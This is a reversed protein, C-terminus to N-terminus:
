RLQHSFSRVARDLRRIFRPAPGTESDLLRANMYELMWSRIIQQAVAEAMQEGFEAAVADLLQADSRDGELGGALVRQEDALLPRKLVELSMTGGTPSTLKGQVTKGQIMARYSVVAVSTAYWAQRM